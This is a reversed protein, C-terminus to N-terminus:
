VLDCIMKSPVRYLPHSYYHENNITICIDIWDGSDNLDQLYEPLDESPIDIKGNAFGIEITGKFMPIYVIDFSGEEVNKVHEKFESATLIYVFGCTDFYGSARYNIFCSSKDDTIGFTPELGEICEGCIYLGEPELVEKIKITKM